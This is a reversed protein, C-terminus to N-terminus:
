KGSARPKGPARASKPFAATIVRNLLGGLNGMGYAQAVSGAEHETIEPQHEILTAWFVKRFLRISIADGAKNLEDLIEQLSKGAAEELECIANVTLALKYPKGDIEQTVTGRPDTGSM